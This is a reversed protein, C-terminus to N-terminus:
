ETMTGSAIVAANPSGQHSFQLRYMEEVTGPIGERSVSSGDM